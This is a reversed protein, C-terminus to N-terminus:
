AQTAGETATICNLQSIIEHVVKDIYCIEPKM